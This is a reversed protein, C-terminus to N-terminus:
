NGGEAGKGKGNGSGFNPNKAKCDGVLGSVNTPLPKSAKKPQATGQMLPRVCDIWLGDGNKADNPIFGAGICADKLKQCPGEVKSSAAGQGQALATLSLVPLSILTSLALTRLKM